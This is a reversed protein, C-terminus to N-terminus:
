GEAGEVLSKLQIIHLLSLLYTMFSYLFYFMHYEFSSFVNMERFIRWWCQYLQGMEKGTRRFGCRLLGKVATEAVETEIEEAMLSINEVGTTHRTIRCVSGVAFLFRKQM